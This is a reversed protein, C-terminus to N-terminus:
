PRMPYMGQYCILQRPKGVKTWDVRRHLGTDPQGDNDFPRLDPLAFNNVGDGGYTTGLISFLMPYDRVSLLRGDCDFYGIPAFNGAFSSISGVLEDGDGTLKLMQKLKKIM